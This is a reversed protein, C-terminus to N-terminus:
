YGVIGLAWCFWGVPAALLVSDLLDLVGGFGPMWHSSDKAGADRKMLSEALDGVMGASGVLLGFLIWGWWPGPNAPGNATWPILWQFTVWSGACAFTLAGVAGEVTKGPSLTPAIKHRGLLKGVTFAGVDGLKVVVLLSVLAWIGWQIRLQALLSVLLGVYVITFVAIGVNMIAGNGGKQFRYMEGAFVLLVCLALALLPWAGSAASPLAEAARAWLIPVWNSVLLLINGAYVTPALPRGGALDALYLVENTAAIVCVLAVPFLWLGPVPAMGDLWCLFGLAAILLTGLFLRWRLM